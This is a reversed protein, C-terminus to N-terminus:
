KVEWSMESIREQNIYKRDMPHDKPVYCLFGNTWFPTDAAFHKEKADDKYTIKIEVHRKTM